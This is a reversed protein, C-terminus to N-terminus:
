KLLRFYGKREKFCFLVKLGFAKPTSIMSGCVLYLNM